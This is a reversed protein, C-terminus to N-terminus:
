KGVLEIAYLYKMTAVYLVGNAAVPSANIESDLKISFLLEKEKSVRFILFEGRRSGLYVKGDAVLASAWIDGALEHTWYPKGTAADVCHVTEGCDGVFVLGDAVAPTACCHRNLAYSWIEGSGSTDGIKTADICKLWAQRKGWWIDGGLTLYVKGAVHVPMSQITSPSKKRNKLYTHINEKPASPDGDFWWIKELAEIHDKQSVSLAKFGYCIGDGGGFIIQPKGNITALAPSSWTSHFIHPGIKEYDRAVLTGTRKDLVILSPADPARIVAHTNDVGNSTNLYLYRGHLL